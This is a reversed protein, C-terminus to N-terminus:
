YPPMGPLNDTPKKEKLKKKKSPEELGKSEHKTEKSYGKDDWALTIRTVDDQAVELKLDFKHEICENKEGYTTESNFVKLSHKGPTAKVELTDKLFGAQMGDLEVYFGPRYIGNILVITGTAKDEPPVYLKGGGCGSVMSVLLAMVLVAYGSGKRM